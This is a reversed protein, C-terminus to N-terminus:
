FHTRKRDDHSAEKRHEREKTKKEMWYKPRGYYDYLRTEYERRIPEASDWEPSDEIERRTLDIYVRSQQYSITKIWHPDVLVKRGPLWNRTDIILYQLKWSDEEFVFDRIHGIEGDNACISYGAMERTSRLRHPYRIERTKLNRPPIQMTASTVHAQTSGMYWYTPWGTYQSADELRERSMVESSDTRPANRVEEMSIKLLLEKKEWNLKGDAAAPSILVYKETFWGPSVMFYRIIWSDEEFLFGDVKGVLGDPTYVRFGRARSIRKLM